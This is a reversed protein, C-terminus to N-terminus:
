WEKNPGLLPDYAEPEIGADRLQKRLSTIVKKLEAMRIERGAMMSITDQLEKTRHVVQEDLHINLTKLAEEVAKRETIDVAIQVHVLRENTWPVVRGYNTYWKGTVPNLADWVVDESDDLLRGEPCNECKKDKKRLVRYCVDGVFDAGFDKQAHDNMFIIKHTETDSVYINVPISNLLIQMRKNSSRLIEEAKRRETIDNVLTILYNPSGDERRVIKASLETSLVSGDKRIFRKELVYNDIEGALVRQYLDLNTSLDDPHTIEAWTMKLLEERSYQLMKCLADNVDVWTKEGSAIAMGLFDQEFYRRLRMESQRLNEETQVRETIDIVGAIAGMYNGQEDTIPATQMTTMIRKGDKRLLEIDHQEAVGNKRAEVNQAAIKEWTEDMFDFLNKGLMEDPEYGLMKEMSPNAFTTNADADIVWIGEQSLEVLQRYKTESEDLERVTDSLIQTKEQVSRRLREDRGVLLYTSFALLISLSNVSIKLSLIGADFIKWGSRPVASLTWTGNPLLVDYHIPDETLITSDGGFVNGQNDQLAFSLRTNEASIGAKSLMPPVDFVMAVLGWFEGQIYVAKRAVLGLGGQRLEYPASLVIERTQLAKAIDAQVAPREDTMLNHGLVEENGEIPYVYTQVGNPAISFNRISSKHKSFEAALHDFATAVHVSSSQHEADIFAHIGDLLALHSNLTIALSQGHLALEDSLEQRKKNSNTTEVYSLVQGGILLSIVLVFSAMRFAKPDPKSLFRLLSTTMDRM